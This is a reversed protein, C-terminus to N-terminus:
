GIARTSRGRLRRRGFLTDRFRKAYGAASCGIVCRLLLPLRSHRAAVAPSARFSQLLYRRALRSNGCLAVFDAARALARARDGPGSWPLDWLSRELARSLQEDIKKGHLHTLAGGHIRYQYLDRHLLGIRFKAAMRLYFDYDEALFMGEDYGGLGFYVQRRFVACPGLSNGHVLDEPEGARCSQFPNGAHDIMTFDTCVCHVECHTHLFQVTEEIASPRYLNDDSTWTFLEGRAADFGTNLAAPLKRNTEHRLSRIRADRAVYAAIKQPTDDTSADDVIVLEWNPYTQELCSAVTQDLYCSRNYTPLVISVLPPSM